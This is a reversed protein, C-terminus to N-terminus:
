GAHAMGLGESRALGALEHRTRTGTKAYCNSLHFGVTSRTIFLEKAIQAYSMGGAVLAVVARERDSLLALMGAAPAADGRPAPPTSPQRSGTPAAVSEPTASDAAAAGAAAAAEAGVADRLAPITLFGTHALEALEAAIDAGRAARDRARIWAVMDDRWQPAHTMAALRDAWRGSQADGVWAAALGHLGIWLAPALRINEALPDGVDDRRRRVWDRRAQEDGIALLVLLDVIDATLLVGRYRNRLLNSRVEAQAARAAERDGGLLVRLPSIATSVPHTHTAGTSLSVEISAGARGRDGGLYQALGLMAHYTGETLDLGSGILATAASLDAVAEDPNGGLAHNIGRWALLSTGQPTAALTARDAGAGSLQWFEDEDAISWATVQLTTFLLHRQLAPDPDLRRADPVGALIELSDRGAGMASFLRLVHVRYAVREPLAALEDDTIAELTTWGSHWETRQAFSLAVVLRDRADGTTLHERLAHPDDGLVSDFEADLLLEERAARDPSVSAALRLSRASERYEGDDHQRRARAILQAALDPDPGSAAAVRHRLAVTADGVHDAAALHLATRRDAATVEYVAARLVAHFIRIETPPTGRTRILREDVLVHAASRVDDIGAVAGARMLPVWGDGLVALASLLQGAHPSLETVRSRIRAALELPAPLDGAAALDALGAVSHESLLAVVHLPSGGTHEHLALALEAPAAADRDRVLRAVDDVTLGDLRIVSADADRLMRQWEPHGRGLPRTAVAVLLPDGESRRLLGALARVSEADAWQLDDILYALPSTGDHGDIAALLQSVAHFANTPAAEVDPGRLESLTRFPLDPADPEGFARHVEFGTLSRTLRRLLHSKGQGADGEVVLVTTRGGRAAAIAREVVEWAETNHVRTREVSEGYQGPHQSPFTVTRAHCGDEFRGGAADVHRSGDDEVVGAPQEQHALPPRAGEHLRAALGLRVLRRIGRKAALERLLDPEHDAGVGQPREPPERRRGRVLRTVQHDRVHERDIDARLNRHDGGLDFLEAPDGAGVRVLELDRRQRPLV